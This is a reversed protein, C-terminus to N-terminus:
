PSSLAEAGHLPPRPDGQRKQVGDIDFPVSRATSCACFRICRGAGLPLQRSQGLADIEALPFRARDGARDGAVVEATARGKKEVIAVYFDGKKDERQEAQGVSKLGASKLFGQIAAEPADVRPGKKEERM